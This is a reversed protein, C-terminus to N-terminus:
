VVQGPTAAFRWNSADDWFGSTGSQWHHEQFAVYIGSQGGSGSGQFAVNGGDLRPLAFFTFNGTGSPIATNEDAIRVFDFDVARARSAGLALLVTIVAAATLTASLKLEAPRRGGDYARHIMLIRALGLSQCLLASLRM